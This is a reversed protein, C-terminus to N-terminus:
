FHPRVQFITGVISRSPRAQLDQDLFLVQVTREEQQELWEDDKDWAEEEEEKDEEKNGEPNEQDEVADKTAVEVENDVDAM